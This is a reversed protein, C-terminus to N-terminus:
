LFLCRGSTVTGVAISEITDLDVIEGFNYLLTQHFSRETGNHEVGALGNSAVRTFLANESEAGFSVTTGDRKLLTVFSPDPNFSDGEIVVMVSLPSIVIQTVTSYGGAIDIRASPFLTIGKGSFDLEWELSWEGEFLTELIRGDYDWQQSNYFLERIILEVYGTTTPSTSHFHQLILLRNGDNELIVSEGSGVTVGDDSDSAAFLRAGVFTEEPFTVAEDEAIIEYLVYIGFSDAITQVVTITLGDQTVTVNPTGVIEDLSEMQDPSPNFQTILAEHWGFTISLATTTGVILVMATAVIAAFSFRTKRKMTIVEGQKSALITRLMKQKQIETARIMDFCDVINKQMM